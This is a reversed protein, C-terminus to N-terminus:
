EFFCQKISTQKGSFTSLYVGTGSQQDLLSMKPVELSQVGAKPINISWAM